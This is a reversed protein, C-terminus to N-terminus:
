LGTTIDDIEIDVNLVDPLQNSGSIVVICVIAQEGETGALTSDSFDVGLM